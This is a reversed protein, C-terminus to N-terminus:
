FGRMLRKVESGGDSDFACNDSSILTERHSLYDGPHLGDSAGLPRPGVRLEFAPGAFPESYDDGDGSRPVFLSPGVLSRFGPARAGRTDRSTNSGWVFIERFGWRLPPLSGGPDISCGQLYILYESPNILDIV